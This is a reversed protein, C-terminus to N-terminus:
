NNKIIITSIFNNDTSKLFYLGTSLHNFDVKITSLAPACVAFLSSGNLDFLTANIESNTSNEINLYDVFPNPFVTLKLNEMTKVGTTKNFLPQIVGSKLQTKSSNFLVNVFEGMSFSITSNARASQFVGGTSVFAEQATSLMSIAIFAIIFTIKM